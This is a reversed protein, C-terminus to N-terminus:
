GRKALGALLDYVGGADLFHGECYAFRLRDGPRIPTRVEAELRVGNVYTGNTSRADRILWGRVPEFLFHAHLKSVAPISLVLDCLPARGISIRDRNASGKPKVVPLIGEQRLEPLYPDPPETAGVSFTPMPITHHSERYAMSTSVDSGAFGYAFFVGDHKAIFESRSLRSVEHTLEVLM